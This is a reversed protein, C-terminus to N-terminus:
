YKNLEIKENNYKRYFNKWTDSIIYNTKPISFKYHKKNNDIFHGCYRCFNNM